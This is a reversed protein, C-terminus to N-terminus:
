RLTATEKPGATTNVSIIAFLFAAEWKPNTASLRFLREKEEAELARGRKEKSLPLAQYNHAIEAWRGIRKLVQQLVSCEHNIGSPGCKELRMQQYARIQDGTIEQVRMEGFFAGLMKINLKYEHFTKASIYPRRTELWTDAGQPFPLSALDSAIM